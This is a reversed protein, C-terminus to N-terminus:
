AGDRPGALSRAARRSIRWRAVAGALLVPLVALDVWAVRAIAGNYGGVQWALLLFAVVSALGMALAAPQLVPRFAAILMFGGLLGFLVARHRLLIELDPGEVPVGYLTALQGPGIVGSFPMLHILAAVLLAFTVLRAM